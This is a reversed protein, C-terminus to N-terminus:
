SVYIWIHLFLYIFPAAFIVSDLRDYVGGHGPMINGSDKVNAQRKFKSQILDGVTGFVSMIVAIVLWLNVTLTETFNAIFYSAICSFILGGLFGEVTKKPSIREFLKRKGFNKGVLYAFSDNIWILPFVGFVIMPHFSNEYSPLLCVFIFGGIIYTTSILYNKIASLKQQQARFLDIILFLNALITPVLLFYPSFGETKDFAFVFFLAAFIFYTVSYTNNVLKNFEVLCIIGFLFFVIYFANSSLLVAGIILTIYLLGSVARIALEKM